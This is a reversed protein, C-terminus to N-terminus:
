PPGRRLGTVTVAAGVGLDPAAAAAAAVAAVAAVAAAAAAAPRLGVGKDCERDLLVLHAEGARPADDRARQRGRTGARLRALSMSAARLVGAGAGAVRVIAVDLPGSGAGVRGVGGRTSWPRGSPIVRSGPCIVHPVM